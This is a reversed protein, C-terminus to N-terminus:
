RDIVGVVGADEWFSGMEKAADTVTSAFDRVEQSYKEQATMVDVMKDILKKQESEANMRNRASAEEVTGRVMAQALMPQGQQQQIDRALSMRVQDQSLLGASQMKLLDRTRARIAEDPTRLSDQISKAELSMKQMVQGFVRGQEIVLDVKERRLKNELEMLRLDKVTVGYEAAQWYLAATEAQADALVQKLNGTEGKSFELAASARQAQTAELALRASAASADLAAREKQLAALEETMRPKNAAENIQAVRLAEGSLAGQEYAPRWDLSDIAGQRKKILEGFRRSSEEQVRLSQQEQKYSDTFDRGRKSWLESVKQAAQTAAATKEVEDKTKSWAVGLQVAAVTLAGVTGAMPNVLSLMQILNNGGAMIGGAIGNLQAGVVADQLGIAGQQAIFGLPMGGGSRSSMASNRKALSIAQSLQLETILGQNRLAQLRGTEKELLEARSMLSLKVQAAQQAMAMQKAVNRDDIRNQNEKFQSILREQQLNHSIVAARQDKERQQYQQILDAQKENHIRNAQRRAEEQKALQQVAQREAEAQAKAAAAAEAAARAKADKEAQAAAVAADRAAAEQAVKQAAAETQAKKM